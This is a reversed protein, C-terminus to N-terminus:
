VGNKPVNEKSLKMINKNQKQLLIKNFKKNKQNWSKSKSNVKSKNEDHNLFDWLNLQKQAWLFSKCLKKKISWFITLKSQM